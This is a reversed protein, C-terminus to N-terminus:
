ANRGCRLQALAMDIAGQHHPIMMAVFDADIDGSPKINMATMMRDMAASNEALFQAEDTHQETSTTLAAAAWSFLAVGCTLAFMPKFLMAEGQLLTPRRAVKLRQSPKGM